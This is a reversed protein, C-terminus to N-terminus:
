KNLKYKGIVPKENSRLGKLTYTASINTDTVIVDNADSAKDTGSGELYTRKIVDRATFLNQYLSNFINETELSISQITHTDTEHNSQLLTQIAIDNM